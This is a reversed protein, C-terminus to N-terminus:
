LKFLKFYALRLILLVLANVKIMIQHYGDLLCRYSGLILVHFFGSQFNQSVLAM